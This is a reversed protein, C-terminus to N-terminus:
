QPEQDMPAELKPDPKLDPVIQGEGGSQVEPLAVDEEPEPVPQLGMEALPASPNEEEAPKIEGSNVGAREQIQELATQEESARQIVFNAISVMLLVVVLGIVGVQIRQM